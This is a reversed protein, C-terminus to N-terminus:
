APRDHKGPVAGVEVEEAAEVATALPSDVRVAFSSSPPAACLSAHASPPASAHARGHGGSHGTCPRRFRRLYLRDTVVRQAGFVHGASSEDVVPERLGTSIRFRSFQKCSRRPPRRSKKTATGREDRGARDRRRVQDREGRCCPPAQAAGTRRSRPGATRSAQLRTGCPRGRCDGSPGYRLAPPAYRRSLRPRGHAAPRRPGGPAGSRAPARGPSPRLSPATQGACRRRSAM